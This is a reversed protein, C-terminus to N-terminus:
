EQISLVYYEGEKSEEKVMRSGNIDEGHCSRTKM